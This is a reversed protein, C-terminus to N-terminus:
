RSAMPRRFRRCRAFRAGGPSLRARAGAICGQRANGGTPPSCAAPALFDAAGAKLKKGGWGGAISFMPTTSVLWCRSSHTSNPTSLGAGRSMAFRLAPLAVDFVASTASRKAARVPHAPLACRGAATTPESAAPALV